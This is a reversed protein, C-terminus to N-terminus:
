ERGASFNLTKLSQRQDAQWFENNKKSPHLLLNFLMFGIDSRNMISRIIDFM